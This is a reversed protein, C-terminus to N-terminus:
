DSLERNIWAAIRGSFEFVADLFFAIASGLFVLLVTDLFQM